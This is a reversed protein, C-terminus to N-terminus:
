SYVVRCVVHSPLLVGEIGTGMGVDHDQWGLVVGTGVWIPIGVDDPYVMGKDVVLTWRIRYAQIQKPNAPITKIRIM